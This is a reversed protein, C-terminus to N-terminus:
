VNPDLSLFTWPLPNCFGQKNHIQHLRVNFLKRKGWLYLKSASFLFCNHVRSTDTVSTEKTCISLQRLQVELLAEPSLLLHDLVVMWHGGVLQHGEVLDGVEVVVVYSTHGVMALPLDGVVLPPRVVEFPLCVEEVVRWSHVERVHKRRWIYTGRL